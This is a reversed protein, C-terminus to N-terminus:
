GVFRISAIFGLYTAVISEGTVAAQVLILQAGDSLIFGIGPQEEGETVLTYDARLVAFGLAGVELEEIVLGEVEFTQELMTSLIMQMQALDVNAANHPGLVNMMIASDDDTGIIFLAGDASGPSISWTEPLVFGVGDREDTFEPDELGEAFQFAEEAEEEDAEEELEEEEEGNEYAEYTEEPEVAEPEDNDTCGAFLTVAMLLVLLLALLKKM